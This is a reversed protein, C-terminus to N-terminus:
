PPDNFYKATTPERHTADIVMPMEIPLPLRHRAISEPASVRLRKDKSLEIGTKAPWALNWVFFDKEVRRDM